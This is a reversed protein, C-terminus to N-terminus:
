VFLPVILKIQVVINFIHGYEAANKAPRDTNLPM